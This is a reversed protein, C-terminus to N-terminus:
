QSFYRIAALFGGLAVVMAGIRNTLDQKLIELDAKTAIQEKFTNALAAATEQAQKSTFGVAELDRALQLTDFPVAAM